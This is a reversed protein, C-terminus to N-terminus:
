QGIRELYVRLAQKVDIICDGGFKELLAKALEVAVMAEGVVAAAPVVCVDSRERCAEVPEGSVLDISRLPTGLTPIPKVAARVILPEGNTTGGELGGARNTPRAIRGTDDKVIEDHADRGLRTALAFGDGIEVGKVAPISMVSGAIRGDLRDGLTAYGGLGPIVKESRVEFVGGITQGEAEAADIAEIMRESAKPDPCRVPSADIAATDMPASAYAEDMAINGISIVRSAVAIGVEGLISKCVAGAAVRSVTERASARELVDRIDSRAMKWAGALDAHGPRPATVAEPKEDAPEVKMVDLWNEWDMNAVAIAVPSGITEGLRVGSVIQASDREIQMRGGRGHGLQRRALEQTIFAATLSVGSPVGEVITVVARGHSEGASCFRLM